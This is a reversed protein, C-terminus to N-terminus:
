TSYSVFSPNLITASEEPDLIFDFIFQPFQISIPDSSKMLKQFM